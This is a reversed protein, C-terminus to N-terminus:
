TGAQNQIVIMQLLVLKVPHKQFDVALFGQKWILEM